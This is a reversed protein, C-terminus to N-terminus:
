TLFLGYLMLGVLSVYILFGIRLAWEFISKTTCYAACCCGMYFFLLSCVVLEFTVTQPHVIFNWWFGLPFLFPLLIVSIVRVPMPLGCYSSSM